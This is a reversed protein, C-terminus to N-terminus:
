AEVINPGEVGEFSRFNHSFFDRLLCGLPEAQNNPQPVHAIVEVFQRSTDAMFQILAEYFQPPQPLIREDSDEHHHEDQNKRRRHPPM